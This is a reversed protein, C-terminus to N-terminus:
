QTAAVKTVSLAISLQVLMCGASGVEVWQPGWPLCEGAGGLRCGLGAGRVEDRGSYQLGKVTVPEGSRPEGGQGLGRVRAGPCQYVRVCARM